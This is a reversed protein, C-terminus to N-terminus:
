PNMGRVLFCHLFVSSLHVAQSSGGTLIGTNGHLDASMIFCSCIVFGLFCLLLEM